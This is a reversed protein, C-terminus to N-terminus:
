SESHEKAGIFMGGSRIAFEEYAIITLINCPLKYFNTATMGTHCKCVRPNLIALILLLVWLTTLKKLCQEGM